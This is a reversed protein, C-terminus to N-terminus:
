RWRGGRTVRDDSLPLFVVGYSGLGGGGGSGREEQVKMRDKKSKRMRLNYRM